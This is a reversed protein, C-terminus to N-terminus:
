AAVPRRLCSLPASFAPALDACGLRLSTRAGAAARLGRRGPWRRCPSEAVARDDGPDAGGRRVAGRLDRDRGVALPDARAASPIRAPAADGGAADSVARCADGGDAHGRVWPRLAVPVSRAGASHPSDADDAGGLVARKMGLPLPM